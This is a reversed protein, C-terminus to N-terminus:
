RFSIRCCGLDIAPNKQDALSAGVEPLLRYCIRQGDRQGEVLGANKLIQLHHSIHPQPLDLEQAIENVCRERDLLSQLIQLRTSDGMARLADACDKSDRMPKATAVRAM